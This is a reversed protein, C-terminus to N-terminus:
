NDLYMRVYMCIKDIEGLILPKSLKLLEYIYTSVYKSHVYTTEFIGKDAKSDM